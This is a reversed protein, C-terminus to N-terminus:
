VPSNNQPANLADTPQDVTEISDSGDALVRISPSREVADSQNAQSPPITSLGVMEHSRIISRNTECETNNTLGAAATLGADGNAEAVDIAAKEKNPSQAAQLQEDVAVDVGNKIACADETRSTDIVCHGNNGHREYECATSQPHETPRGDNPSIDEPTTQCQTLPDACSESLNTCSM